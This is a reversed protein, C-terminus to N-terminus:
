NYKHKHKRTKKNRTKKNKNHKYNKKKQTRRRRKYVKYTRRNGGKTKEKTKQALANTLTSASAQLLLPPPLQQVLRKTLNSVILEGPVGTINQTKKDYLWSLTEELDTISPPSARADFENTLKDNNSYLLFRTIINEKIFFDKYLKLINKQINEIKDNLIHTIQPLRPALFIPAAATAPPGIPAAEAAAAVRAAEAAAAVRAAEAAAAVRASNYNSYEEIFRAQNRQVLTKFSSVFVCSIYIDYIIGNEKAIQFWSIYNDPYTEGTIEFSFSMSKSIARLIKLDNIKVCDYNKLEKLTEDKNQKNEEVEVPVLQNLEETNKKIETPKEAITKIADTLTKIAETLTKEDAPAAASGSQAADQAAITISLASVFVASSAASASSSAAAVAAAAALFAAALTVAVFASFAAAFIAASSAAALTVAVFASFAAAFIAASSALYLFYFCTGSFM